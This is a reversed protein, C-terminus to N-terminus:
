EAPIVPPAEAGPDGILRYVRCTALDKLFLEHVKVGYPKLVAQGRRRLETHLKSRKRNKVEEWPKGSLVDQGVMLSIEGITNDADDTQTLLAVLDDVSYVIVLTGVFNVGDSSQLTQPVLINSQRATPYIAVETWAPWWVLIGPGKFKVKSGRIWKVAGKNTPIVEWRPIFRGVWEAIQGIWALAENM